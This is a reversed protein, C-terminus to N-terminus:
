AFFAGEAARLIVLDSDGTGGASDVMLMVGPTRRLRGRLKLSTWRQALARGEFFLRLSGISKGSFRTITSQASALAQEKFNLLGRFQGQSRTKFVREL